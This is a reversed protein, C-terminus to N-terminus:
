LGKVFHLVLEIVIIFFGIASIWIRGSTKQNSVDIVLKEFKVKLTLYELFITDLKAVNKELIGLRVEAKEANATQEELITVCREILNFRPEVVEKRAFEARDKVVDQRLQNLGEVKADSVEKAIFIAEQTSTIKNNLLEFKVDFIKDREAMLMEFYAKPKINNGNRQAGV